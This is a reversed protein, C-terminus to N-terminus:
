ASPPTHEPGRNPDGWRRGRSVVVRTTRSSTQLREELGKKRPVVESTRPRLVVDSRLWPHLTPFSVPSLSSGLGSSPLSASPHPVPSGRPWSDFVFRSLDCWDHARLSHCPTLFPCPLPDRSHPYELADLYIVLKVVPHYIIDSLTPTPVVTFVVRNFFSAWLGRRSM